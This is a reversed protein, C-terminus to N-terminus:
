SSNVRGSHAPSKGPLTRDRSAVGYPWATREIMGNASGIQSLFVGSFSPVIAHLVFGGIRVGSGGLRDEVGRELERGGLPRSVQSAGAPTVEPQTLLDLGQQAGVRLGPREQWLLRSLAHSQGASACGHDDRDRFFGAVANPAVLEELLDAFAPTTDDIHGLLLFWDPAPNGELDNLQAHVGLADDGPELGLSLGQGEHVM